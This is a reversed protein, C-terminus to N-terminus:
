SVMCSYHLLVHFLLESNMDALKSTVNETPGSDSLDILSAAEAGAAGAVAVGGAMAAAGALGAGKGKM